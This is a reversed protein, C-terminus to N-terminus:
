IFGSKDTEFKYCHGEGQFVKEGMTIKYTANNQADNSGGCTTLVIGLMLITYNKMTGMM